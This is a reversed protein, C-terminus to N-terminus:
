RAITALFSALTAISPAAGCWGIHGDPRVLWVMGPEASFASKFEGGADTVLPVKERDAPVDGSAAVAFGTACDGLVARLLDLLEALRELSDDKSDVYGILVHRGGGTKERLRTAHSV